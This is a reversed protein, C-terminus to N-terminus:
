PQGLHSPGKLKQQLMQSGEEGEGADPQWGHYVPLSSTHVSRWLVTNARHSRELGYVQADM